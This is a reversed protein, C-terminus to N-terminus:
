AGPPTPAAPAAPAEPAAPKAFHSDDIKPNLEIKEITLTQRFDTGPSGQDIKFPFKLGEIQRYDSLSSEWPLQQDSIKRLGEWKATLFTAADIFYTRAEGNKSTLKLRYVPKGDLDEKGALEIESGKAKYDVLPGDLDAEDPMSKLEEASMPQADSNGTFPNIMWGASVGDYVRVIKKGELTIESHLKHPRQLELVVTGDVGQALSVQGSIRESQVSKIKDLGGRAEIAKKVIEDVTQAALPLPLVCFLITLVLKTKM